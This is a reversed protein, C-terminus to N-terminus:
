IDCKAPVTELIMTKLTKKMQKENEDLWVDSLLPIIDNLRNAFSFKGVKERNSQQIFFTRQRKNHSGQLLLDMFLEQPECNNTIRWFMVAKDYVSKQNPTLINAEKRLDGTSIDKIKYGFVARLCACSATTVRKMLTKPLMDTLWVSSCYYLSSFFLGHAVYLCEAKTLHPHIHRIAQTRSNAERLLKEVHGDWSMKHDFIIGLVKILPKTKILASDIEIEPLNALERLSFYAAETKFSNLVMGSKRLWEMARKTNQSAM